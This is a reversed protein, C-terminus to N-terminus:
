QVCSNSRIAEATIVAFVDGGVSLVRDFGAIAFRTVKDERLAAALRKPLDIRRSIIKNM